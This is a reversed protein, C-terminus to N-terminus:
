PRKGEDPPTDRNEKTADASNEYADKIGDYKLDTWGDHYIPGGTSMAAFDRPSPFRPTFVM